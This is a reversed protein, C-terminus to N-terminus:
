WMFLMNPSLKKQIEPQGIHRNAGMDTGWQGKRKRMKKGVKAPVLSIQRAQFGDGIRM